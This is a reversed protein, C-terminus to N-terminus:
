VAFSEAVFSVALGVGIGLAAEIMFWMTFQGVSPTATIQPWQGFLAVTVSLVLMIRAPNAVSSMGPIPVFIFVGSVRVLTLLFGLLTATSLILEGGM